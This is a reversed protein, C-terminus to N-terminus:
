EVSIIYYYLPQGGRYIEFEIQPFKNELMALLDEAEKGSVKEGYYLTCVEDDGSILEELLNFVVDNVIEGVCALKDDALGIISGEKIDSSNIKTDRVAYTVEGTKVKAASSAMIGATKGAEEAPAFALLAALGQPITKTPVIVVNKDTLGAVQQATMIINSNNPLIFVTEAKSGEVAELLEGTSPNMTQGGTVVIDAGLSKMIDKMGEGIAVSVIGYPKEAAEHPIPEMVTQEEMNTVTVKALDGSALCAEIVMGPHNSHIHVRVFGDTEVVMLSDGYGQLRDSLNGSDQGSITRILVETCYPYKLSDTLVTERDRKPGAPDIIESGTKGATGAQETELGKLGSVFGQLLLLWGAGGADVVGAERLEPLMEPTRDLAGAAERCTASLVDVVPMGRGAATLAGAAAERAVTLITGEVPKIVAKYAIRVGEELARAFGAGSVENMNKLGLAMGRLLQSLIVGSNGRAGMLAGKSAAEAIDSITATGKVVRAVNVAAIMTMYMNTGTDGDPVPFVNLRDIERYKEGLVKLGSELMKKFDDGNLTDTKM